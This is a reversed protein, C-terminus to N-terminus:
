DNTLMRDTSYLYKNLTGALFGSDNVKSLYLDIWGKLDPDGQRIAIAISDPHGALQYPRLELSGAPDALRWNGIEIEDYLLAVLRGDKVAALMDNWGQFEVKQARPFDEQVFGVYSTGGIVGIRSTENNLLEPIKAASDPSRALLKGLELRNILMFQRVSAYSKSFSVLAARDLTDSLLSIGIDARGAVVEDIVGDFTTAARNYALSVGLKRAIDEALSPDIGQLAGSKDTYFFPVVDESFVAVTLTGKAKIRAIASAAPANQAAAPHFGLCIAMVVLVISSRCGVLAVLRTLTM